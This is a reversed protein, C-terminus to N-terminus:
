NQEIRAGKLVLDGGAKLATSGGTEITGNAGAKISLNGGTEIRIENGSIVIKSSGVQFTITNGSSQVTKEINTLRTEIFKFRAEDQPTAM